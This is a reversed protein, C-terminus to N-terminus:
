NLVNYVQILKKSAGCVVPQSAVDPVVNASDELASNGSQFLFHAQRLGFLRSTSTRFSLPSRDSQFVAENIQGFSARRAFLSAFLPSVVHQYALECSFFVLASRRLVFVTLHASSSPVIISPHV